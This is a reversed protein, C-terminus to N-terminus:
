ASRTVAQSAADLLSRSLWAETALLPLGEYRAFEAALEREKEQRQRVTGYAAILAFINCIWKSRPKPLKCTRLRLAGRVPMEMRGNAQPREALRSAILREFRGAATKRSSHALALMAIRDSAFHYQNAVFREQYRQYPPALGVWDSPRMLYDIVTKNRALAASIPKIKWQIRRSRMVAHALFAHLQRGAVELPLSRMDTLPLGHLSCRWSARLIWERRVIVPRGARQAEYCCLACGYRRHAFPLLAAAECALFTGNIQEPDVEVAWALREVMADCAAHLAPDLGGKGRALDLRSLGPLIELHRFLQARSVRHAATLRSLWSDFAEDKRPKIPFALTERELNPSWKGAMM